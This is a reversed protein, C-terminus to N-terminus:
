FAILMRHRPLGRRPLHGGPGQRLRGPLQPHPQPPGPAPTAAPKPNSQPRSAFGHVVGAYAGRNAAEPNFGGFDMLAMWTPTWVWAKGVWKVGGLCLGQGGGKKREPSFINTQALEFMKEGMEPPPPSRGGYRGRGWCSM